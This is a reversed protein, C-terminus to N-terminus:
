HMVRELEASWIKYVEITPHLSDPMMSLPIEGTPQVFKGGFDMWHIHEPDHSAVYAAILKNAAAIKDRLPNPWQGRPFIASLAIHSEPLRTRLKVLIAEVGWAIEEPSDTDTNNSGINIVIWRIHNSPAALADLLGQDLRWLVHQTRDGGIGCDVSHKPAWNTEWDAKGATQWREIISAGLFAIEHGGKTAEAVIRQHHATWDGDSRPAPATTRQVPITEKTPAAVTPSHSSACSALLVTCASLAAVLKHM